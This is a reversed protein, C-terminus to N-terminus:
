SLVLTVIYLIQTDGESIGWMCEWGVSAKHFWWHLISGHQGLGKCGCMRCIVEPFGLFPASRCLLLRLLRALLMGYCWWWTTSEIFFVYIIYHQKENWKWLLLMNAWVHLIASWDVTVSRSWQQGYWFNLRLKWRLLPM